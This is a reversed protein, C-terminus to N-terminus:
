LRRGKDDERVIEHDVLRYQKQVFHVIDFIFNKSGSAHLGSGLANKIDGAGIIRALVQNCESLRASSAIAQVQAGVDSGINIPPVMDYCWIAESSNAIFAKYRAESEELAREKQLSDTIDTMVLLVGSVGGSKNKTPIKDISFWRLQDAIRASEVSKLQSEGTRIVQMIERQREAPDDWFSALELFTKGIPAQEDILGLALTNADK